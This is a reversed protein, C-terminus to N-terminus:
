SGIDGGELGRQNNERLYGCGKIVDYEWILINQLQESNQIAVLARFSNEDGLVKKIITEMTQKDIIMTGDNEDEKGFFRIIIDSLEDFTLNKIQLM